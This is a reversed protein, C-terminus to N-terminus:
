LDVLSYKLGIRKKLKIPITNRFPTNQQLEQANGDKSSVLYHRITKWDGSNIINEWKDYLMSRGSNARWRRINKLAIGIGKRKPDTEILRAAIRNVALNVRDIQGHTMAKVMWRYAIMFLQFILISDRLTAYYMFPIQLIFGRKTGDSICVPLTVILLSLAQSM